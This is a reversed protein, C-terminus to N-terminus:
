DIENPDGKETQKRRYTLWTTGYEALLYGRTNIGQLVLYKGRDWFCLRWSSRDPSELDEVWIPEPFERGVRCIEEPTLPENKEAAQQTRLASIAMNLAEAVFIHPFEGMKQVRMHDEIMFIAEDITVSRGGKAVSVVGVSQSCEGM